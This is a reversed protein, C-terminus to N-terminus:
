DPQLDLLDEDLLPDDEGRLFRVGYAKIDLPNTVGVGALVMATLSLAVMPDDMQGIVSVYAEDPDLSWGSAASPWADQIAEAFALARDDTLVGPVLRIMVDLSVDSM